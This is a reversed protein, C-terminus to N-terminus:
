SLCRNKFNTNVLLGVHGDMGFHGLLAMLLENIFGKGNRGGGNAMVFKETEEGTSGSFMVSMYSKRVEPDPLIQEILEEIKDLQEQTLKTYDYGTRTLIYDDKKEKVWSDNDLDYCKNNFPLYNTKTDFQILEHNCSTLQTKIAEVYQKLPHMQQIQKTLKFEEKAKDFASQKYCEEIQNNFHKSMVDYFVQKTINETIDLIWREEYYIYLTQDQYVIDGQM